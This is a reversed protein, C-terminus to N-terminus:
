NFFLLESKGSPVTSLFGALAPSVLEIGPGPFNRTGRLLQTQAFVSGACRSGTSQSSLLWWSLFGVVLSLGHAAVFVWHLWFYMIIIIVPFLTSSSVLVSLPAELASIGPAKERMEWLRRMVM